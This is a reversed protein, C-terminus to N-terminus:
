GAIALLPARLDHSVSNSFSELEQNSAVLEDSRREMRERERREVVHARALRAYLMSSEILLVLLVLAAALLGYLRGAYFGLDFRAANIVASLAIDFLWVCVVVMLWVDLVTPPGRRWLVVLALLSLLWVGSVVGIM